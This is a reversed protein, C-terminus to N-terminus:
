CVVVKSFRFFSQADYDSFWAARCVVLQEVKVGGGGYLRFILQAGRVLIIGYSVLRHSAREINV